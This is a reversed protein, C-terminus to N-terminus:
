LFILLAAQLCGILFGLVGGFWVIMRLERRSVELIIAEMRAPSFARIKNAILTQLDAMELGREVLDFLNKELYRHIFRSTEAKMRAIVGPPIDEPNFRRIMDRVLTPLDVREVLPPVIVDYHTSLYNHLWHVLSEKFGAIHEWSMDRPNFRLIARELAGALDVLELGEAILANAQENESDLFIRAKTLVDPLNFFFLLVSYKGTVRQKVMEDMAAINAPTLLSVLSRRIHDPTLVLSMIHHTIFDAMAPTLQFNQLVSDIVQDLVFRIREPTLSKEALHATLAPVSRQIVQTLAEALDDALAHLKATQSFEAQIVDISFDVAKDVREPTLLRQALGQFDEQTLLTEVILTAIRDALRDQEAPILGPTLPLQKGMLYKPELPHFLMRVALDNTFYGVGAGVVPPVLMQLWLSM